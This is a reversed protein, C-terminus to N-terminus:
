AMINFFVFLYIWLFDVFHWYTSVIEIPTNSYNKIKASYAKFFMIVLATIGGLVHLIHVGTIIALFSASPNSNNGLLLVGQQQLIGFGLLQLIIFTLGLLVTITILLQYRNMARSRFAKLSLQLTLSSLLITFTSYWFIIPLKFSLWNPQGSKVIYASTFAAFMMCISGMAIWLAFKHPHIKKRQESLMEM